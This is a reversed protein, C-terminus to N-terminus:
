PNAPAYRVLVYRPAGTAVSIAEGGFGAVDSHVTVELSSQGTQLALLDEPFWTALPSLGSQGTSDGVLEAVTAEDGYEVVAIPLVDTPGPVRDDGDTGGRIVPGWRVSIPEGPVEVLARLESLDDSVEAPLETGDIVTVESGVAANGGDGGAGSVSTTDGGDDGCGTVFAAAAVLVVLFFRPWRYFGPGDDALARM